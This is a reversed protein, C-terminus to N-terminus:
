FAFLLGNRRYTLRVLAAHQEVEGIPSNDFTWQNFRYQLGLWFSGGDDVDDLPVDFGGGLIYSLDLGGDPDEGGDISGRIFEADLGALLYVGGLIYGLLDSELHLLFLPHLGLGLSLSNTTMSVTTGDDFSSTNDSRIWSAQLDFFQLPLSYQLHLGLTSGWDDQVGQTLRGAGAYLGVGIFSGTYYPSYPSVEESAAELIREVGSPQDSATPPPPSTDNEGQQAQAFSLPALLTILLTLTITTISTTM